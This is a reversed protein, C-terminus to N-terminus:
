DGHGSREFRQLMAPDGARAPHILKIACPRRLLVHDALYVEAMGSGIKERLVYQGLRRAEVAEHRPSESRDAGYVALVATPIV